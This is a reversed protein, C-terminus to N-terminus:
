ILFSIIVAGQSQRVQSRVLLSLHCWYALSNFCLVSRFCQPSPKILPSINSPNKTTAKNKTKKENRELNEEEYDIRVDWDCICSRVRLQYLSMMMLTESYKINPGMLRPPSGECTLEARWILRKNSPYGSEKLTDLCHQTKRKRKKKRNVSISSQKEPLAFWELHSVFNWTNCIWSGAGGHVCVNGMIKAQKRARQWLSFNRNFFCLCLLHYIRSQSHDGGVGEQPIVSIRLNM